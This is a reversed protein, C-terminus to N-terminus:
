VPVLLAVDVQDEVLLEVAPPATKQALRGPATLSGMLSLHRHNLKGIRGESELERMRDLPFGLNADSRIGDHDFADSRHSEVFSGVDADGPIVRFSPDGGKITDDFREQGPVVFGASSVLALCCESLRKTLKVVAGPRHSAM